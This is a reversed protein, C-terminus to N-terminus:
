MVGVLKNKLTIVKSIIFKKEFKNFGIFWILCANIISVVLVLLVLGIFTESFFQNIIFGIVYTVLAVFFLPLSVKKLYLSSPFQLQYRIIFLRVFLGVIAVFASIVFTAYVPYGIKYVWYTSVFTIVFLLSIVLQYVRINGAAQIIQALPSYSSRVLYEILIINVFIATYEPVKGLWLELVQQSRLSLPVIFILMLFFSIKSASFVLKYSSEKEGSSYSKVIQPNVSIIFYASFLAISSQVQVAIARSANLIPGFFMNILMNVGQTSLVEALCGFIMWVSFYMISKLLKMNLVYEYHIEKLAKKCYCSYLFRMIITEILLLLSYLELRQGAYGDIVFAIGLKICVDAISLVAFATMREYAILAANYPASVITIFFSIVSYHFVWLAINLQGQPIVLKNKVFWLGITELLIVTIIGIIIHVNVAATFSECISVNSKKTMAVNLFRQTSTSISTNFFGLMAVIGGVVNYIGYDTAGLANLIVRSAYLSVAMMLFMRCYLM